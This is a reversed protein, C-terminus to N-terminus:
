KRAQLKKFTVFTPKIIYRKGNSTATVTGYMANTRWTKFTKGALKFVMKGKKDKSIRPSGRKVAGRAGIKYTGTKMTGITQGKRSSSKRKAVTKRVTNKRKTTSKRKAPM